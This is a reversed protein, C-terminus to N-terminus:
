VNNKDIMGMDMVERRGHEARERLDRAAAIVRDYHVALRAPDAAGSLVAKVAAGIKGGSWHRGFEVGSAAEFDAVNKRLIEYEHRVRDLEVELEDRSRWFTPHDSM